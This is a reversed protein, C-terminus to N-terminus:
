KIRKLNREMKKRRATILECPTFNFLEKIIDSTISVDILEGLVENRMRPLDAINGSMRCREYKTIAQILEALEELSMIINEQYSKSEILKNIM